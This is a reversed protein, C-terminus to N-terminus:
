EAPTIGLAEFSADLLAQTYAPNHVGISKDEHAIYIWNFLALAVNEPAEQVTPHGDPGNESLVGAAVLADGLEDLRAQTETQVGNIDFYEANDHCDQCVAISPEFTHNSDDGMHCGVCTDEVFSYHTSPKGEVGAGAVGLLMASQPGHHPGWHSSIETIMGSNDPDPFVRRPQHCNACLNGEGGDFTVGRTAYLPVPDTTELAWDDGMFSTHIQHCTYCDQRTPNPSGVEIEDPNQGAAVMAEFGIGSHCGACDASTGRVFAEGTAHLSLSWSTKMGPIVGTNNHCETCRSDTIEAAQGAAGLLGTPGPEGNAPIQNLRSGIWVIAFAFVVFLAILGYTTWQVRPNARVWDKGNYRYWQKTEFGIVWWNGKDDQVMLEKLATKFDTESLTGADFQAELQKFRDEAQKFNM